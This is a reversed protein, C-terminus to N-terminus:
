RGRTVNAGVGVGKVVGRPGIDIGEEPDSVTLSCVGDDAPYSDGNFCLYGYIMVGYGLSSDTGAGSAGVIAVICWESDGLSLCYGEIEKGVFVDIPIAEGTM